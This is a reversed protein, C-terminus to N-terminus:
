DKAGWGPDMLEPPMRDVAPAAGKHTYSPYAIEIDEAANFADIVEASITSRLPLTAYSNTLYWLSVKIGYTHAFTFVRPEVSVSRMNYRMRLTNYHKRTIDTYGKAHRAAVEKAIKLAKKHNSTFSIVVDVGDWVTKMEDYSYNQIIRTFIYNNPIHIIRGARRNQEYTELTVDEFLMIRTLGVELVDAVVVDGEYVVRIRDGVHISGGIVIVLWGLMSMFWDKMAIAIGASIFGLLTVFYLINEIYNFVLVLLVVLVTIINAARNASYLRQTDSITRRMLLKILFLAGLLVVVAILINVLKITETKIEQRLASQQAEFRREQVGLATAYVEQAASFEGVMLGVQRLTREAQELAAEDKLTRLHTRREQLLQKKRELLGITRDLQELRSRHSEFYREMERIHSLAALIAFPNRVEPPEPLSEVRTLNEYPSLGIEGLLDLRTQLTAVRSQLEAYREQSAADRRPALRQMQGELQEKESRLALYDRHDFFRKIWINDPDIVRELQALEPAILALEQQAQRSENVDAFAISVGLLGLLLLRAVRYM